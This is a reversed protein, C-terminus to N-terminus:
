RAAQFWGLIEEPAAEIWAHGVEPDTVVRTEVGVEDLAEAYPTMTELPVTQDREGHLFLTPPHGDPMDAPVQCFAGGCTAWSASHIALACMRGPYSLAMRSTMYGGSSLGAAFLTRTDISGFTGGELEDFLAVMLDHDPATEWNLNYPPINTDWYTEGSRKAEPTLVAFGGDLLLRITRTQHYVGYHGGPTNAWDEDPPLGSGQFLLVAPWGAAPPDGLPLQYHVDRSSMGVSVSETEYPCRLEGDVECCRSDTGECRSADPHADGPPEICSALLLLAAWGGFFRM